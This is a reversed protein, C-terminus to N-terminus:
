RPYGAAVAPQAARPLCVTARRSTLVSSLSRFSISVPILHPTLAPGCRLVFGANGNAGAMVLGANGNARGLTVLAAM